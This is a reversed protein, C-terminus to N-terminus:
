PFSCSNEEQWLEQENKWFPPSAASIHQAQTQVEVTWQAHDCEWHSISAIIRAWNRDLLSLVTDELKEGKAVHIEMNCIYGSVGEFVM